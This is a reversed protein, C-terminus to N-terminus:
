GAQAAAHRFMRICPQLVEETTVDDLRTRPDCWRRHNAWFPAGRPVGHQVTLCHAGYPGNRRADLPGMMSVTPVGLAAALHTPGTDGGVFLQAHRIVAALEAFSTAPM